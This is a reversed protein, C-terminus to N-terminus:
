YTALKLPIFGLFNYIFFTVEWHFVNHFNTHNSVNSLREFAQVDITTQDLYDSLLTFNVFMLNLAAVPNFLFDIRIKNM